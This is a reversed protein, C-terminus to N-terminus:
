RPAAWKKVVGEIAAEASAIKHGNSVAELVKGAETRWGKLLGAADKKDDKAKSVAAYATGLVEHLTELPQLAKDYEAFSGLKDPDGGPMAKLAKAIADGLGTKKVSAPRASEWEKETCTLKVM